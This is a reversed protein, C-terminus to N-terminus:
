KRSKDADSAAIGIYLSFLTQLCKIHAVGLLAFIGPPINIHYSFKTHHGRFNTAIGRLVQM